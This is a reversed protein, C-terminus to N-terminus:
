RNVHCYIWSFNEGLDNVWDDDHYSLYKYLKDILQKRTYKSIKPDDYEGIIRCVKIVTFVM